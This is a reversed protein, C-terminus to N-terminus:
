NQKWGLSLQPVVKEGTSGSIRLAEMDKGMLIYSGCYYHVEAELKKETVMVDSENLNEVCSAGYFM